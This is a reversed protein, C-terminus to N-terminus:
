GGCRFGEALLRADTHMTLFVVKATVSRKRMQRVADFGNLVPMSIDVLIVDPSLRLAAEILAHGDFVAGVVEFEDKLLSKMAEAVMTHDDALLLKPRNM